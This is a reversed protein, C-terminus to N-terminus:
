NERMVVHDPDVAFKFAAGQVSISTVPSDDIYNIQGNWSGKEAKTVHLVIRTDPGMVKLTGQWDGAIDQAHLAGASLTVAAVAIFWLISKRRM